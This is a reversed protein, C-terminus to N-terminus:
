ILLLEKKLEEAKIKNIKTKDNNYYNYIYKSIQFFLEESGYLTLMNLIKILNSDKDLQLKNNKLFLENFYKYLINNEKKDNNKLLEYYNIMIKIIHLFCDFDKLIPIYVDKENEDYCDIIVNKINELDYLYKIEICINDDKNDKNYFYVNEINLEELSM